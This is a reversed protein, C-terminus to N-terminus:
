RIESLRNHCATFTRLNRMDFFMMPLEVLQNHNLNLKTLNELKGIEDPLHSLQNDHLDLVTLGLLLQIDTSLETIQNSALILKSLDVHEWWSDEEIQFSIFHFQCCVIDFMVKWIASYCKKVEQVAAGM